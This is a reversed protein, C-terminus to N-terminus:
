QSYYVFHVIEDITRFPLAGSPGVIVVLLLVVPVDLQSFIYKKFAFTIYMFPICTSRWEVVMHM